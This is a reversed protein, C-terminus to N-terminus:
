IKNEGKVEQPMVCGGLGNSGAIQYGINNNEIESDIIDKFHAAINYIKYSPYIFSKIIKGEKTIEVLSDGKSNETDKLYWAKVNYGRDKIDFLPEIEEKEREM